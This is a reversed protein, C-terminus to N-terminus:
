PSGRHLLRKFASTIKSWGMFGTKGDTGTDDVLSSLEVGEFLVAFERVTPREFVDNIALCIGTAEEIEHILKVTLLSHGGLEFFDDDLGVQPVNLLRKWISAVAIQAAELPVETDDVAGQLYEEPDPLADRDLKGNANQPIRDVTIFLTPVMYKPIKGTLYDPMDGAVDEASEDVVIYAVLFKNSANREHLIVAANSIVEHERLAAEIEGPEIRFGRLKVQSDRRGIFEISGDALYRVLDGTKYLRSGRGAAFPNPIFREATLE